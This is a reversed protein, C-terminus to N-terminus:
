KSDECMTGDPSDPSPFDINDGGPDGDGFLYIHIKEGDWVIRKVILRIALRKQEVSMDDVTAAFSKLMDRLLDFSQEQMEQAQMTQELEQINEQIATGKEALETIRNTIPQEAATGAVRALTGLLANMEKESEQRAKKLQELDEVLQNGEDMFSKKGANLCRALESDNEALKKVEFCVVKDLQNGNIDRNSCKHRRSREKLACVYTFQREGDATTRDSLKPRMYDGCKCFLLGSLLATNIRGARWKSGKSKNEDLLEQVASWDKGSILGEHKGVSVVWEEMPKIRTSNGKNQDTRNYAMIGHVGDFAEQTSYPEVGNETLYQYMCEDARAYVPNMIIGRIAFRTFAKGQRTKYDHNLLYTELKTLSKYELFKSYILRVLRAEEPVIRLHFAKRKRGDVTVREEGESEYGIPTTGGLWRGTKALEHLNDRIREAITERELQAFTMVINFMARGMPTGLDFNEKLSIFKTGYNDLEEVFDACDRVSRTIRDLRYCVIAELGGKRMTKMMRQFNPRNTNGGSFGEDEFVIANAAAEKGYWELIYNRCMEIQNGISEGKGTFKSKRSYIAYIKEKQSM